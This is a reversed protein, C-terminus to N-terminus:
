ASVQAYLGIHLTVTMAVPKVHDIAHKSRRRHTTVHEQLGTLGLHDIQERAHREAVHRNELEVALFAVAHEVEDDAVIAQVIGGDAGQPGGVDEFLQEHLRRGIRM